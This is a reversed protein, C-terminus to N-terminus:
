GGPDAILAGFPGRIAMKGATELLGDGEEQSTKVSKLKDSM